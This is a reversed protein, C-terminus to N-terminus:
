FLFQDASVSEADLVIYDYVNLGYKTNSQVIAYEENQNLIKIQSFDAYGKNMNYVGILTAKRSVTYNEQSDPQILIDGISLVVTDLYYEKNEEDFNYVNTEIFESSITGDELIRQRIVGDKGNNGGQTVYAEPILFFEREAIASNPIKLGIEDDLILEVELFRDSVFNIMSNTFSLQVYTNEDANHLVKVAGWSEYQNKMFRVKVYEEEELQAARDENVQIVISWNENTSLKYANDGSEVLETSILQNKTYEKGELIEATVMDATLSEYGDTWYSVIGTNPAKCFEVLDTLESSGNIDNINEMMKSNALKLVTGKISYKFDYISDFQLSDFGHMFNVIDTRFEALEKNSLSNEGLNISDLYEKLRGTQDVTYVLDGNAVREGERAYYNMYGATPTTVVIEDRIAIGRYHNASSLSGEQVEYGVIHTTRFYGIVCIIVYVFVVLFIMMGINLNLPKRYKKIKVPKQQKQKKQQAM